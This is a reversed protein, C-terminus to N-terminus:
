QNAEVKDGKTILALKNRLLSITLDSAIDVGNMRQQAYLVVLSQGLESNLQKESIDDSLLDAKAMELFQLYYEDEPSDCENMDGISKKFKTLLRDSIAM